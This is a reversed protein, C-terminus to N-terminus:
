YKCHDIEKRRILVKKWECNRRLCVGEKGKVDKSRSLM